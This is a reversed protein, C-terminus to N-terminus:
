IFNNWVITGEYIADDASDHLKRRGKKDIENFYNPICFFNAQLGNRELEIAWIPYTM